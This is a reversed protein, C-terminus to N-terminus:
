VKRGIETWVGTAFQTLMLTNNAVMDFNLGGNLVINSNNTITISGAAKIKITQGVYGNTFNTIATTGATIFINGSRVSPTANGNSFIQVSELSAM